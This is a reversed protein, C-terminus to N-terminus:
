ACCFSAHEGFSLMTQLHSTGGTRALVDDLCYTALRVRALHPEHSNWLVSFAFDTNVDDSAARAQQGSSTEAGAVFGDHLRPRARIEAAMAGDITFDTRDSPDADPYLEAITRGRDGEADGAHFAVRVVEGARLARGAIWIRHGRGGEAYDGGSADLTAKPERDLAGHVQVGVVQLGALGITAICVGDVDVSISPM